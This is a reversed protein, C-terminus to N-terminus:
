LNVNRISKCTMFARSACPDGGLVRRALRQADNCHFYVIAAACNSRIVMLDEFGDCAGIIHDPEIINPEFDKIIIDTVTIYISDRRLSTEQSSESRSDRININARTPM